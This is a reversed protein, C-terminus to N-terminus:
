QEQCLNEIEEHVKPFVHEESLIVITDSARLLTDGRPIVEQGQNQVAVILCHEPWPIDAIKKNALPSGHMIVYESLIKEGTAEPQQIGQRRLIRELLSEYIPESKLLTATVYAVISITTLSLLQSLSGTMEFILIIGTLPARVIATFYGAMALLVFNNLYEPPLGFADVCIMGFIGGLLSGLVLLPFFIGGPAGSDFSIASYLFKLLFFLVAAKLLMGDGTLMEVLNGGSGLLEPMTFGLIGALLFPILLRTFTNLRSANQYLTQVKLTFWNYFAGMIGLLIGLILLMWYYQQPLSGHVAFSFVPERGLISSTLFDATISATMVSVLVSVSFNKHIEELSFLVGALPAGFAAALGASAGCTLLYKEETKGRKLTRSLGKGTMAGLQISPGERGLSLGGLLCLFGGIFKAPLVKWWVPDLKGAMEGELQPIGSGSIMPEWKVLRSVVFALFVLFLFWGAIALPSRRAYDLLANLWTGAYTLLIRYLMVILGAAAGVALGEWILTVSLNKTRNLTKKTKTSM